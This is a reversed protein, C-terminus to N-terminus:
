FEQGNDIIYQSKYPGTFSTHVNNKILSIHQADQYLNQQIQILIKVRSLLRYLINHTTM